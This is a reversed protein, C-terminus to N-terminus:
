VNTGFVNTSERSLKLILGREHHNLSNYDRKDIKMVRIKGTEKDPRGYLRRLGKAARGNM